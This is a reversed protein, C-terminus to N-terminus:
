DMEDMKIQQELARIFTRVDTCYLPEDLMRKITEKKYSKIGGEKKEIECIKIARDLLQDLWEKETMDAYSHM